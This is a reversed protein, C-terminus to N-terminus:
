LGPNSAGRGWNSRAAEDGLAQLKGATQKGDQRMEREGRQAWGPATKYALGEFGEWLQRTIPIGM